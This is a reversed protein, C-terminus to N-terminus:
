PVSPAGRLLGGYAPHASVSDHGTGPLVRYAAIGPRFRGILAEPRLLGHTDSILAVRM